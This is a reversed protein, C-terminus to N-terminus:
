AGPGILDNLAARLGPFAFSYGLETARSPLVRQGKTIIEAVDGLVMRLLIEPPGIPLFPPWFGRRVARAVERSFEVNRVPEPATGNIPGVAEPRDIALRLIAVVDRWHIWSMWQTGFSPLLPNSAGGVPAAGGPVYRFLPLLTGLVGRNPDLVVGIRVIALRTGFSEVGRAAAEWDKCVNALFDGGAPSTERLERDDTPGYYGIASASVLVSPRSRAQEIAAVVNTTSDIRSSRIKRRIEPTWRDDLVGHGVLNVVADAGDIGRQWDGPRCPNGEVCQAGQLFPDAQAKSVSRTLVIPRDGRGLLDRVLRRGVLGTGGTLFVRM